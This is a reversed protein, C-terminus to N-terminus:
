VSVMHCRLRRLLFLKPSVQERTCIQKPDCPVFFGLRRRWAVRSDRHSGHSETGAEYRTQSQRYPVMTLM